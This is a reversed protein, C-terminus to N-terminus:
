NTCTYREDCGIRERVDICDRRPTEEWLTYTYVDGHGVKAYLMIAYEPLLRVFAARM